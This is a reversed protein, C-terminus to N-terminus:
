DKQQQLLTPTPVIYLRDMLFKDIRLLSQGKDVEIRYNEFLENEDEQQELTEEIM